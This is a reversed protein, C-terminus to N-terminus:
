FGRFREAVRSTGQDFLAAIISFKAQLALMNPSNEVLSISAHAAGGALDNCDLRHWHRSRWRSIRDNRFIALIEVRAPLLSGDGACDPLGGTRVEFLRAFV